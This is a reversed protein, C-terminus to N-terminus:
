LCYHNEQFFLCIGDAYYNKNVYGPSFTKDNSSLEFININLNNLREFTPTDKMKMLLQIDGHNLEHFHKKKYYSLRERHNDVKHKHALTSWLFCYNDDNQINVISTSICFSKPLKCYSSARIHHYRFM